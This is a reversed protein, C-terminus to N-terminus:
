HIIKRARLDAIAADDLGHAKLVDDTDAGFM